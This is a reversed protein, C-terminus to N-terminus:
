DARLTVLVKLTGYGLITTAAPVVGAGSGLNPFKKSGDVQLQTLEVSKSATEFRATGPILAVQASEGTLIQCGDWVADANDAFLVIWLAPDAQNRDYRFDMRVGTLDNATSANEVVWRVEVVASQRLGVADLYVDKPLDTSRCRVFNREDGDIPSNRISNLAADYSPRRMTYMQRSPGWGGTYDDREPAPNASASISPLTAQAPLVEAQSSKAIEDVGPDTIAVAAVGFIAALVWRAVRLWPRKLPLTLLVCGVLLLVAGMYRRWGGVGAVGTLVLGVIGVALGVGRALVERGTAPSASEAPAPITPGPGKTSTSGASEGRAAALCDEQTNLQSEDKSPEGVPGLVPSLPEPSDDKGSDKPLKTM